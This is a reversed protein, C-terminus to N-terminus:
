FGPTDDQWPRSTQSPTPSATPQSVPASSASASAAASGKPRPHRRRPTSAHPLEDPTVTTSTSATSALPDGPLVPSATPVPGVTAVPSPDDTPAPGATSAVTASTTTTTTTPEPGVTATAAGQKASGGHAPSGTRSWRLVVVLAVIAVLALAVWGFSLASSSRARYARVDIIETPALASQPFAGLPPPDSPAPAPMPPLVPPPLPGYRTDDAVVVKPSAPSRDGPATVLELRPSAPPLPVTRGLPVTAPPPLPSRPPPMAPPLPSTRRPTMPPPLPSARPPAELPAAVVPAPPGTPSAVEPRPPLPTRMKPPAQSLLGFRKTTPPGESGDEPRLSETRVTDPPPRIPTIPLSDTLTPPPIGASEAPPKMTDVHPPIWRPPISSPGREPTPPTALVTRAEERRAAEVVARDIAARRAVASKGLREGVVGAVRPHALELQADKAAAGIARRLEHVTSFRDEPRTAVARSVVDQVVAAVAAPLSAAGRAPPAGSLLAHLLAGVGWVDTRPDLQGGLALEPASFRADEGLARALRGTPDQSRVQAGGFGSVKSIGSATVIVNGPAVCGHVVGVEHARALASCADDAITLAVEPPVPQAKSAALLAEVLDGDVLEFVVFPLGAHDGMDLSRVIHADEIAQVSRAGAALVAVFAADGAFAPQLTRLAVLKEFRRTGRQRALWTTTAQDQRLVCLLEYRGVRDGPEFETERTSAVVGVAYCSRPRARRM